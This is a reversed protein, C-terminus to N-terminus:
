SNWALEGAPVQFDVFAETAKKQGLGTLKYYRRRPRGVEKPDVIEWESTLWGAQELRALMPYLTGSGVQTERSIEAGSRGARPKTLFFKLVKLTPGSLRIGQNDM